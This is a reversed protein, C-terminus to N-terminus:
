TGAEDLLHQARRMATKVRRKDSGPALYDAEVEVKAAAAGAAQYFRRRVRGVAVVEDGAELAAVWAAPSWAVVPVSTAVGEADRATVQLIALTTGSGLTRVEPASSCVGMVIALNFSL